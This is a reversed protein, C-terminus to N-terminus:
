GDTGGFQQTVDCAKTAAGFAPSNMISSPIKFLIGDSYDQSYDPTPAPITATVIPDPFDPVGHDRMCNTTELAQTIQQETAQTKIAPMPSLSSCKSQASRFTPSGMNLDVIGESSGPEPYNTVGHARMCEAYAVTKAAANSGGQSASPDSGSGGGCAAACLSVAIFMATLAGGHRLRHRTPSSSM